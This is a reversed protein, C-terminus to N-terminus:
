QIYHHNKGLKAFDFYDFLEIRLSGRIETFGSFIAWSIGAKVRLHNSTIISFLIGITLNEKLTKKALYKSVKLHKAIEGISVLPEETTMKMDLRLLNLLMM